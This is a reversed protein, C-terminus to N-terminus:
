LGVVFLFCEYVYLKSPTEILDVPCVCAYTVLTSGYTWQEVILM